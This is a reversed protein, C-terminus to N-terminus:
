VEVTTTRPVACLHRGCTLILDIGRPFDATVARREAWFDDPLGTVGLHHAREIGPGTLTLPGGAALDAVQVVVTTSAEPFEDTGLNFRALSPAALCIAFAARASEVVIPAGSHFRVYGAIAEAGADANLWVPADFDALALVVAATAPDLPAPPALAVDVRALRGPRAMADLVARFVRQSDFVPDALGPAVIDAQSIGQM